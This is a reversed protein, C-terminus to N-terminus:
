AAKRSIAGNVLEVLESPRYPKPVFLSDAVRERQFDAQVGGSTYVVLTDGHTRRVERAVRYGDGRHALDVDLFAVAIERPDELARMAAEASDAMIVDFAAGTLVDAVIERILPEDEVVLVTPKNENSVDFDETARPLLRL